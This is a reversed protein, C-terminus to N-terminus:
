AHSRKGQMEGFVDKRTKKTKETPHTRENAQPIIDANKRKRDHKADLSSNSPTAAVIAPDPRNLHIRARSVSEVMIKKLSWDPNEHRVAKTMENVFSEQDKLDKNDKFFVGRADDLERKYELRNAVRTALDDENLPQSQAQGPKQAAASLVERFVQQIDSDDGTFFKEALKQAKAEIEDNAITTDATGADQHGQILSRLDSMETRLADNQQGQQNLQQEWKALRKREVAAEELREDASRGKQYEAVGGAADIDAQPVEIEQGNVKVAVTDEHSEGPTDEQAPTDETSEDGGRLQKQKAVIGSMIDDRDLVPQESSQEDQTVEEILPAQEQAETVVVDERIAAESM